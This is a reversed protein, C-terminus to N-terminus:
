GSPAPGGGGREAAALVRTAVDSRIWLESVATAQVETYSKQLIPLIPGYKTYSNHTLFIVVPRDAQVRRLVTQNGLLASNEYVTPEPLIPRLGALLYDWSNPSWVVATAGTLHNRKIWVAADHEASITPGYVSAYESETLQGTLKGVPAPTRVGNHSGPSISGRKHVRNTLISGNLM